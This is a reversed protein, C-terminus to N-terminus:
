ILSYYYILSLSLHFAIKEKEEKEKMQGLATVAGAIDAAELLRM